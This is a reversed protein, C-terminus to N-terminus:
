LRLLWFEPDSVLIRACATANGNIINLSGRNTKVISPYMRFNSKLIQLGIYDIHFFFALFNFHFMSSNRGFFSIKISVASWPAKNEKFSVNDIPVSHTYCDMIHMSQQSEITIVHMGRVSQNPIAQRNLRCRQNCWVFTCAVKWIYNMKRGFM